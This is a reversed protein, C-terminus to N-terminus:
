CKDSKEAYFEKVVVEVVRQARRGVDVKLDERPECLHVLDVVPNVGVERAEPHCNLLSLFRLGFSPGIRPGNNPAWLIASQDMQVYM